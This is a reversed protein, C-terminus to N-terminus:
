VGKIWQIAEELVEIAEDKTFEASFYNDCGEEFIIKDKTKIIDLVRERDAKLTIENEKAVWHKKVAGM